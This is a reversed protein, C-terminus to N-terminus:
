RANEEIWKGIESESLGGGVFRNVEVGDKLLKLSPANSYVTLTFPEGAPRAALRRGAIYVTEENHNWWAKYLYFVDKKTTRDRTILGKDNMFM